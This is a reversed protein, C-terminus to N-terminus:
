QSGELANITEQLDDGVKLWTESTHPIGFPKSKTLESSIREPIHLNSIHTSILLARKLEAQTDKRHTKEKEGMTLAERKGKLLRNIIQGVGFFMVVSGLFARWVPRGMFSLLIIFGVSSFLITTMIRNVRANLKKLETEPKEVIAIADKVVDQVQSLYTTLSTSLIYESGPQKLESFAPHAPIQSAFAKLNRLLEVSVACAEKADADAREIVPLLTAIFVKNREFEALDGADLHLSESAAILSNKTKNLVGKCAAVDGLRRRITDLDFTISSTGNEMSILTGRQANTTFDPLLPKEFNTPQAAAISM